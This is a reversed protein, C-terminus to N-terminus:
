SNPELVYTYYMWLLTEYYKDEFTDINADTFTESIKNTGYYRNHINVVISYVIELMWRCVEIEKANALRFTEWACDIPPPPNRNYLKPRYESYLFNFYEEVYSIFNQENKTYFGIKTAIYPFYDKETENTWRQDRYNEFSRHLYKGNDYLYDSGLKHKKIDSRLASLVTEIWDNDQIIEISFEAQKLIERQVDDNCRCFETYIRRTHKKHRHIASAIVCWPLYDREDENDILFSNAKDEIDKKIQLKRLDDIEKEHKRQMKYIIISIIITALFSAFGILVQHIEGLSM